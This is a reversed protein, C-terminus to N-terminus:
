APWHEPKDDWEPPREPELGFHKGAVRASGISPRVCAASPSARPARCRESPTTPLKASRGTGSGRGRRREESVMSGRDYAAVRIANKVGIVEPLQSVEDFAQERQSRQTVEGKLTVWSDEVTVQIRQASIAADSM